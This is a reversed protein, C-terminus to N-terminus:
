TILETPLFSVDNVYSVVVRGDAFDIRSVATNNKRFWVRRPADLDVERENFQAIVQLLSLAFGGHTVMGVRDDSDVHRALLGLLSRKARELAEQETEYPRNWWGAETVTEPLVLDPFRSALVSRTAGPLGIREDSERDHDYIGGWEHIDDLAILPLGTAKAVYLGTNVARIMLSCYLHTLGYGLRNQPDYGNASNHLRPQALHAALRQAQQHGTETLEPDAKREGDAGYQDWIANNESQAHRIIYLQM